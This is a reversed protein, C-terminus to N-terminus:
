RSTTTTQPATRPPSGFLGTAMQLGLVACHREPEPAHHPDASAAALLIALGLYDAVAAAGADAPGSEDGATQALWYAPRETGATLAAKQAAAVAQSGPSSVWHLAAAFAQHDHGVPKPGLRWVCLCGWWLADRKPLVATLYRVLDHWLRAEHLTLAFRRTEATPALPLTTPSLKAVAAPGAAPGAAIKVLAEPPPPTFTM